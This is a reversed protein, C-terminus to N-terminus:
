NVRGSSSACTAGSMRTSPAGRTSYGGGAEIRAYLKGEHVAIRLPDDMVSVLREVGAGLSGDRAASLVAGAITYEEKPFARLEYVLMGDQGNLEVAQDPEAQARSGTEV